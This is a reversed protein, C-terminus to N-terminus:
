SRIAVAATTALLSAIVVVAAASVIPEIMPHRRNMTFKAFRACILNDDDGNHEVRHNRNTHDIQMQSEVVVIRIM